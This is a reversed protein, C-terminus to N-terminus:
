PAQRAHTERTALAAIFSAALWVLALAFARRYAAAEYIPVAGAIDGSWSKELIWGILPQLLMAGTMAGMNVVGSATGALRAPVSEKVFAFSIVM